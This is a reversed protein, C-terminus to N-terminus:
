FSLINELIEQMIWMLAGYFRTSVTIIVAYEETLESCIFKACVDDNIPRNIVAELMATWKDKPVATNFLRYVYMTHFYLGFPARNSEYYRKFNDQFFEYLRDVNGEDPCNDIM